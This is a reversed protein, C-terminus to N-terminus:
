TKKRPEDYDVELLKLKEDRGLQEFAEPESGADVSIPGDPSQYHYRYKM